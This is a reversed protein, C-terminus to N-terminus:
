KNRGGGGGGGRRGRGGYGRDRFSSDESRPGKAHEVSVRFSLPVSFYM